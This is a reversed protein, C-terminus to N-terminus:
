NVDADIMRYKRTGAFEASFGSAVRQDEAGLPFAFRGRADTTVQGIPTV